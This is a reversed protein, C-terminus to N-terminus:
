GHGEYITLKVEPHAILFPVSPFGAGAGIDLLEKGDCDKFVSELSIISEHIGEEWLTDGKFGTLNMVRNKTQIMGAYNSLKNFIEDNNVHQKVKDRYTM